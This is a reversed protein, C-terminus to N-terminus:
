SPKSHPAGRLEKLLVRRPNQVHEPGFGGLTKTWSARKVLGESPNQGLRGKFSVRWPKSRAGGVSLNRGYPRTLQFGGSPANKPGKSFQFKHASFFELRGGSTVEILSSKDCFYFESIFFLYSFQMPVFSTSSFFIFVFSPWDICASVFCCM